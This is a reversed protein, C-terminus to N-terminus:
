ILSRINNQLREAIYEQQANTLESYLPISIATEYYDEAVPFDGKRFGLNKYYPHLHVPIYHVNVGIDDM